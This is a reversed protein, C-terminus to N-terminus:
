NQGRRKWGHSPWLDFGETQSPVAYRCGVARLVPQVNWRMWEIWSSHGGHLDGAVIQQDLTTSLRGELIWRWCVFPCGPDSRTYCVPYNQDRCYLVSVVTVILIRGTKSSRFCIWSQRWRRASCRDHGLYWDFAFLSVGKLRSAASYRWCLSLCSIGLFVCGRGTWPPPM